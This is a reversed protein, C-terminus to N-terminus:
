KRCPYTPPQGEDVINLANSRAVGYTDVGWSGPMPAPTIGAFDQSTRTVRSTRVVRGRQKPHPRMKARARRFEPSGVPPRNRPGPRRGHAGQKPPLGKAHRRARKKRRKKMRKKMRKRRPNDLAGEFIGALPTFSM